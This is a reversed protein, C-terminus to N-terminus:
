PKDQKEDETIRAIVTGLRILEAEQVVLFHLGFTDGKVWQVVAREIVIPREWDPVSIRLEMVLTPYVMIPVRVHCGSLSLDLIVGVQDNIGSKDSVLTRFEVKFRPTSRRDEAPLMHQEQEKRMNLLAPSKMMDELTNKSSRLRRNLDIRHAGLSRGEL